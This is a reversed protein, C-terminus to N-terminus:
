KVKYEFQGMCRSLTCKGMLRDYQIFGGAGEIRIREDGRSPLHDINMQFLTNNRFLYGKCDGIHFCYVRKEIILTILGTAGCTQALEPYKEYFEFDLEYFTKNMLVEVM